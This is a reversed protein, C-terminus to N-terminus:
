RPRSKSRLFLALLITTAPPNARTYDRLLQVEGPGPLNPRLPVSKVVDFKVKSQQLAAIQAQLTTLQAQLATVKSCVNHADCPAAADEPSAKSYMVFAVVGFCAVLSVKRLTKL